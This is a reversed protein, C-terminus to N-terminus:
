IALTGNAPDLKVAARHVIGLMRRQAKPWRQPQDLRIRHVATVTDDEISTFAALLAPLHVTAGTNEDRWACRPPYRLVPGAIDKTLILARSGLYREAVTGYPDTAEEWVAVARRIRIEDDETRPRPGAEAEVMTRDFAKLQAPPVRRDRGDGPQWAPLGLRARV